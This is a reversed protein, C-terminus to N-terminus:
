KSSTYICFFVNSGVIESPLINWIPLLRVSCVNQRINIKCFLVFFKYHHGHLNRIHTSASFSDIINCAVLKHCINYFMTLSMIYRRTEITKRNFYASRNEYNAYIPKM